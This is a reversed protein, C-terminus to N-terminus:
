EFHNAFVSWPFERLWYILAFMAASTAWFWHPLSEDEALSLQNKLSTIHKCRFPLDLINKIECMNTTTRRRM